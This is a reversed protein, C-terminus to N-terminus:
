AIRKDKPPIAPPSALALSGKPPLPPKIRPDAMKGAKVDEYVDAYLMDDNVDSGFPQVCNNKTPQVNSVNRTQVCKITM